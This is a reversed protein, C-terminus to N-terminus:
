AAIHQRATRTGTARPLRLGRAIEELDKPQFMWFGNHQHAPIRQNIAADRILRYDIPVFGAARILAPLATLRIPPERDDASADM